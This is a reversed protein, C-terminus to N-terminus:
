QQVMQSNRARENKSDGNLKDIFFQDELLSIRKNTLILIERYHFLVVLISVLAICILIILITQIM